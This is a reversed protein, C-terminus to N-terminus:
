MSRRLAHKKPLDPGIEHAVALTQRDADDKSQHTSISIHINLSAHLLGRREEPEKRVRRAEAQQARERLLPEVDGLERSDEADGLRADRPMESEELIRTEDGLLALRAEHVVPNRVLRPGLA